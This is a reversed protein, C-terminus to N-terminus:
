FFKLILPELISEITKAVMVRVFRSTVLKNKFVLFLIEELIESIDEYFREHIRM